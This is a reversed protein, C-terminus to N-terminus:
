KGDGGLEQKLDHVRMALGREGQKVAKEYWVLAAAKDKDVGLGGEYAVGMAAQAESSGAAAAESLWEVTEELARGYREGNAFLDQRYMQTLEEAAAAFGQDAAKRYWDFAADMDAEGALGGARFVAMLYQAVADGGAADAEVAAVRDAADAPGIEGVAHMWALQRLARRDSAAGALRLWKAAADADKEVGDGRLYAAGLRTQAPVHGQDAAKRVWAIGEQPNAETGRGALYQEGVYFQAQVDGQEALPLNAELAQRFYRASQDLDQKVIEGEEYLLGLTDAAAAVGQEAAKTYWHVARAPYYVTGQANLMAKALMFQAWDVGQRAARRLWIVAEVADQEIGHGHWYAVALSYQSQADGAEAAPRLWKHAEADDQEVGQGWFYMNALVGLAQTYGADAARRYHALAEETRGAADLARGLQYVFRPAEDDAEIAATCAAIAAEAGIDAFAVGDAVADKDAPHAALVDCDHVVSEDDAARGNGASAVVTCLAVATLWASKVNRADGM